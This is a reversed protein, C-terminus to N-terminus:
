NTLWYTGDNILLLAVGAAVTVTTNAATSYIQDSGARSITLTASGRNKIRIFRGTNGAVAPLTWTVASSGTFVNLKPTATLTQAASSVAVALTYGNQMLVWAEVHTRHVGHIPDLGRAACWDTWAHIAARYANRTRTNEWRLLFVEVKLGIDPTTGPNPCLQTAHSVTMM